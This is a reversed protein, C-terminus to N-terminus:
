DDVVTIRTVVSAIFLKFLVALPLFLLDISHLSCRDFDGPCWICM